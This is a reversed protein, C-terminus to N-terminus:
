AVYDTAEAFLTKDLDRLRAAAVRRAKDAAYKGLPVRLPVDERDPLELIVSAARDPDGSQKGEMSGLIKMFKGVTGEYASGLGAVASREMGAKLFRTRFPGPQLIHVRIGLPRVEQALSEAAFELAAKSAGYAAFGPYNAISAAAGMVLITGGGRERMNPLCHRLMDMQAVFNVQMMELVDSVQSDEVAGFTGFGANLLVVDPVGFEKVAEWARSRTVEDRLGNELVLLRDPYEEVLAQVEPAQPSRTTGAVRGGEKLVRRSVAYGFGSSIGTVLWSRTKM